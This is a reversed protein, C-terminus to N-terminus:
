GSTVNQERLYSRRPSASRPSPPCSTRQQVPHTVRSGPPHGSESHHHRVGAGKLATNVQSRLKHQHLWAVLNADVLGQFASVGGIAKQLAPDSQLQHVAALGSFLM